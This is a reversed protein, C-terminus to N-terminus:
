ATPLNHNIHGTFSDKGVILGVFTPLFSYISFGMIKAIGLVFGGNIIVVFCVLPILIYDATFRM